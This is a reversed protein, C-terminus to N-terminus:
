GGVSSSDEVNETAAALGGTCGDVDDTETDVVGTNTSDGTVSDAAPLKPVLVVPLVEPLVLPPPPFPRAGSM